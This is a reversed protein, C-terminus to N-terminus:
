LRLLRHALGAEQWRGAPILAPLAREGDVHAAVAEPPRPKPVESSSSEDALLHGSHLPFKLPGCGWTM